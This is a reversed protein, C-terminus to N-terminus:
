LVEIKNLPHSLNNRIIYDNYAIAADIETKFTGIHIKKGNNTTSCKYTNNFTISVGRYSSKANSLKGGLRNKSMKQKNSDSHTKGYFSNHKGKRSSKLKEITKESPKRGLAKLSIKRKTEDSLRGSHGGERINMGDPSMTELKNIWYIEKNNLEEPSCHELINFTFNNSYKNWLRQMYPNGHKNNKLQYLHLKWRKEIEFAQGVYKIGNCEILYIGTNM